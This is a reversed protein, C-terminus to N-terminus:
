YGLDVPFKKFANHMVRKGVLCTEQGIQPELSITLFSGLKIVLVTFRIQSHM